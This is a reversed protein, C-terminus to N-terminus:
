PSVEFATGCGGQCANGTGGWRTTGYLTGAKDFVLTAAPGAGDPSGKFAYLVTMTWAGGIRRPSRLRFAIGWPTGDGGDTIGYLDGVSDFILGAVPAGPGSNSFWYLVTKKWRQGNGPTLRFVIGGGSSSGGLATGYLSGRTDFILGASPQGGDNVSTFIHLQKEAWAGRKKTPPTLKFATGCGVENSYKCNQNGGSYTTGYIVGQKDFVLGGNPNAGDTGGAFSHLVKETWQGGKQKPPSLKFVTGCYQYYPDCTTGKGGGFLTAGYLNGKADFTLDGGPFYGDNGGQFSYLITETWPDGKKAPPSLEYVTGCGYLLGLLICGGSGGYATTGYLNGLSEIVLGGSPNMGDNVSKGQFVYQVTQTWPDGKKVPPALQFVTGITTAGYLNGQQDFVVGGAPTQGDNGGQFSYLVKEKWSASAISVTAFVIALWILARFAPRPCKNLNM